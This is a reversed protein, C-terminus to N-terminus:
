SDPPFLPNIAEDFGMALYTSRLRQVIEYIPHPTARTYRLRPYRGEIGPPTLVSPGDHWAHEFDERAKRKFEDVDFRM